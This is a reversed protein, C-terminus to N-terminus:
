RNHPEARRRVRYAACGTGARGAVANVPEPLMDAFARADGLRRHQFDSRRQREPRPPAAKLRADRNPIPTARRLYPGILSKFAHRGSWSSSTFTMLQGIHREDAGVCLFQTYPNWGVEIDFTPNADEYRQLPTRDSIEEYAALAGRWADGDAHHRRVEPRGRWHWSRRRRPVVRRKRMESATGRHRRRRHPNKRPGIPPNTRAM